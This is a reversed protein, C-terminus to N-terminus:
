FYLMPLMALMGLFIVYSHYFAPFLYNYSSNFFFSSICIIDKKPFQCLDKIPRLGIWKGVITVVTHEIVQMITIASFHEEM